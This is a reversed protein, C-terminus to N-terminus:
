SYKGDYRVLNDGGVGGSGGSGGCGWLGVVGDGDGGLSTTYLNSCVSHLFSILHQQAGAHSTHSSM